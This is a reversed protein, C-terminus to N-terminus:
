DNEHKNFLNIAIGFLINQESCSLEEWRTFYPENTIVNKRLVGVINIFGMFYIVNDLESIKFSSYVDKEESYIIIYDDKKFDIKKLKTIFDALKGFSISM